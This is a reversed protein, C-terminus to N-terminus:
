GPGFRRMVSDMLSEKKPIRVHRAVATKKLKRSVTPLVTRTIKHTKVIGNATKGLAKVPTKVVARKKAIPAKKTEVKKTPTTPKAPVFRPRGERVLLPAKRPVPTDDGNDNPTKLVEPVKVAFDRRTLDGCKPCRARVKANATFIHGNHCTFTNDLIPM